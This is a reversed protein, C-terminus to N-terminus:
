RVPTPLFPLLLHTALILATALGVYVAFAIRRQRPTVQDDPAEAAKVALERLQELRRGSGGRRLEWLQKGVRWLLVGTVIAALPNSKESGWYCGSTVAILVGVGVLRQSLTLPASMRDGDLKWVPTLNFLNIVLSFYGVAVLLGSAHPGLLEGAGLGTAVCAASALSGAVPGGAGIIFDEYTSRPQEKLSIFAGFFPIFVPAGVPLGVWRAAAGHGLEHILILVVFGAAFPFGYFLAYAWIMLAMTWATTFFKALKLPILILFKLKTLAVLLLGKFKFLAIAIVGLAGLLPAKRKGPTPQAVEQPSPPPLGAARAAEVARLRELASPPRSSM